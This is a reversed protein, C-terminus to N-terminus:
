EPYRGVFYDAIWLRAGPEQGEVFVYLSLPATGPPAVFDAKIQQWQGPRHPIEVTIRSLRKGAGGPAVAMRYKGKKDNHKVWVSCAYRRGPEATLSESIGATQTDWFVVSHKGSQAEDSTIECNMRSIESETRSKALMSAPWMSMRTMSPSMMMKSLTAVAIM